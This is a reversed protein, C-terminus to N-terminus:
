GPPEAYAKIVAPQSEEVVDALPAKAETWERASKKGVLDAIKQNYVKHEDDM